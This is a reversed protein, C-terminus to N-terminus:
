GEPRRVLEPLGVLHISADTGALAEVEPKFGNRSFFVYQKDAHGRGYAVAEARHKLTGVMGLDVRSSRWKCAGYFFTGNLLRGAVDIDYDAAGWIQGVTQHPSGMTEQAFQRMHDLCISEFATGMYEPLKPVIATDWIEQDFGEAIASLNPRVFWHWFAILRDNITYRMNRGKESADLSRSIEILDLQELKQLYPGFAKTDRGLRTAVENLSTCGQAIAALISSYFAPDRLESQLLTNPEDVLAGTDCLLLHCVNAGLSVNPNCLQLYHPVGGFIGYATVVDEPSYTPFFAAVDRLPLQKVVMRKTARGYLPNREALLNEM